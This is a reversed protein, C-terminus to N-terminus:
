DNIKGIILEYPVNGIKASWKPFNSKYMPPICIQYAKMAGAIMLMESFSKNVQEEGVEGGFGIHHTFEFNPVIFSVDVKMDKLYKLFRPSDATVFIPVSEKEKLDLLNKVCSEMLHQQEDKTISPINSVEEDSDNLLNVFRFSVSVYYAGTDHQIKSVNNALSSTPMFLHNFYESLMPAGFATNTNILLYKLGKVRTLRRLTYNQAAWVASESAINGPDPLNCRYVGVGANIENLELGSPLWNYSKPLLYDELRYPIDHLIRFEFGNQECFSYVSSIGKFRDMMGYFDHGFVCIIRLKDVDTLPLYNNKFKHRSHLITKYFYGRCSRSFLRMFLKLLRNPFNIACGNM